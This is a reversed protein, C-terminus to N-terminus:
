GDEGDMADSFSIKPAKNKQIIEVAEEGVPLDLTDAIFSYDFIYKKKRNTIFWKRAKRNKEENSSRLDKSAGAVIALMLRHIPNNAELPSREGEERM